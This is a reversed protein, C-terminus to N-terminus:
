ENTIFYCRWQGRHRFGAGTMGVLRSEPVPCAPLNVRYLQHAHPPVPMRTRKLLTHSCDRSPEVGEMGVVQVPGRVTEAKALLKSPCAPDTNWCDLSSNRTRGQRGAPLDPPFERSRCWIFYRNFLLIKTDRKKNVDFLISTFQFRGVVSSTYATEPSRCRITIERM